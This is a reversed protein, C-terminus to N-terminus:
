SLLLHIRKTKWRQSHSESRTKAHYDAATADGDDERDKCQSNCIFMNLSVAAPTFCECHVTYQRDDRLPHSTFVPEEHHKYAAGLSHTLAGGHRM